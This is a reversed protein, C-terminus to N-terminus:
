MARRNSRKAKLKKVCRAKRKVYGRKCGSSKVKVKTKAKLKVPATADVNEGPAQSASGPVLLPVPSSLPGQCADGSCPQTPAPPSVFGAGLRADYIDSAGDTDQPVLGETTTFFIDNGSPSIVVQLVPDPGSGSSVLSVSGEGAGEHWEYANVQGNTAAPSLPEASSFVIRSGDESVARNGMEDQQRLLGGYNGVAISAGLAKGEGNLVTRNGDADYGDEGRSVRVLRGSEADYHYVDRAENTDGGVLQAYTSFVLFRGDLGATQAEVGNSGAGGGWLEEDNGTTSPCSLDKVAGSRSAGSCLDAVFGIDGTTSDYVYLNVAGVHPVPRSESELGAVQSGTLLDGEAVFYVRTGDPAVRVVGLVDAAQGSTPDESIQTLGTVERESVACAPSSQSCGISAMYLDNETDHDGPVLSAATTFYVKSGDSSAGHFEASPRGAADGCPVEAVIGERECGGLPRSVELTRAGDLRVFVQHPVALGFGPSEPKTCTTFFVESGDASVANFMNNQARSPVYEKAGLVTACQPYILKGRNDQGVPELSSHESGCGRDFQYLMARFSGAAEAVVQEVLPSSSDFASLLVHCFGPTASELGAEVPESILPKFTGAPEWGAATDPAGTQHLLLQEEPLRGTLSTGPYGLKLVEGMSPSLDTAEVQTQLSSPPILPVTSWGSESRHALYDAYQLGGPAGNFAGPSFYAVSEGNSSVAAIPPGFTNTVGYGGKYVPSVMEYHRESSLALAPSAVLAAGSFVMLVALLGTCALAHTIQIRKV